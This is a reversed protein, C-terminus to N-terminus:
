RLGDLPLFAEIRAETVTVKPTRRCTAAKVRRSMDRLEL